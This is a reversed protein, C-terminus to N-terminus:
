AIAMLAADAWEVWAREYHVGARLALYRGLLPGAAPVGGPFQAALTEEHHRQRRLHQERHQSIQEALDSADILEIALCKVLIDEKITTPSSPQRAWASLVARGEITPELKRDNRSGPKASALKISGSEEMQALERYIQQHSARWFFGETGFQKAIDYGTQPEDLLAALIAHALGM